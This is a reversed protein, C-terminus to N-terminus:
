WSQLVIRVSWRLALIHLLLCSIVHLMYFQSWWRQLSSFHLSYEVFYSSLLSWERNVWFYYYTKLISFSAKRELRVHLLLLSAALLMIFRNQGVSVLIVGDINLEIVEYKCLFWEKGYRFFSRIMQTSFYSALSFFYSTANLNKKQYSVQLM